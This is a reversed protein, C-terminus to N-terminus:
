HSPWGAELINSVTTVLGKYAETKYAQLDDILADGQADTTPQPRDGCTPWARVTERFHYRMKPKGGGLTNQLRDYYGVSWVVPDGGVSLGFAEFAANYAVRHLEETEM